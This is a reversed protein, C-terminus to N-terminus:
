RVTKVSYVKSRRCRGASHRATAWCPELGIAGALIIATGVALLMDDYRILEIVAIAGLGYKLIRGMTTM